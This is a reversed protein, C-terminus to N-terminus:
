SANKEKHIISFNKTDRASFDYLCLVLSGCYGFGRYCEKCKSCSSGLLRYKKQNYWWRDRARETSLKVSDAESLLVFFSQKTANRCSNICVVTGKKLKM